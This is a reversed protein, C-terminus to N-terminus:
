RLMNLAELHIPIFINWYYLTNICKFNLIYIEFNLYVAFTTWLFYPVLLYSAPQSIKYFEYITFVIFLWMIIVIILGGQIDTNNFFVSSWIFNLLLQVIFFVLANAKKMPSKAKIFVLFSSFIMLYIIIWAPAFLWDPPTFVPLNLSHYWDINRM